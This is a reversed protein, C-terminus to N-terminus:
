EDRRNSSPAGCLAAERWELHRAPPLALCEPSQQRRKFPYQGQAPWRVKCLPLDHLIHKGGAAAKGSFNGSDQVGGGFKRDAAAVLADVELMEFM